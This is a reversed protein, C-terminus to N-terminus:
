QCLIRARPCSAYYKTTPCYTQAFSDDLTCTVHVRYGRLPADPTDHLVSYGLEQDAIRVIPRGIDRVEVQRHRTVRTLDAAGVPSALASAALAICITATKM